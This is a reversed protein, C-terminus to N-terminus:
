GFSLVNVLVPLIGLTPLFVNALKQAVNKSIHHPRCPFSTNKCLKSDGNTLIGNQESSAPADTALSTISRSFMEKDSPVNMLNEHDGSHQRPKKERDCSSCLFVLFSILFFTVLAALSGWLVVQM